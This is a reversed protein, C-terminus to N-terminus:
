GKVREEKDLFLGLTGLASRRDAGQAILIFRSLQDHAARCLLERALRCACALDFHSLALPRSLEMKLEDAISPEYLCVFYASKLRGYNNEELPQYVLEKPPVRLTSNHPSWLEQDLNHSFNEVVVDPTERPYCLLDGTQGNPLLVKPMGFFNKIFPTGCANLHAELEAQEAQVITDYDDWVTVRGLIANRVIGRTLVYSVNPPLISGVISYINQLLGERTNPGLFKSIASEIFAIRRLTEADDCTFRYYEQFYGYNRILSFYFEPKSRHERNIRVRRNELDLANEQSRVVRGDKASVAISQATFCYTLLHELLRDEMQFNPDPWIDIHSHDPLEVRLAGAFSNQWPYGLSSVISQIASRSTSVLLDLDGAYGRSTLASIVWGGTIWIETDPTEQHLRETFESYISPLIAKM